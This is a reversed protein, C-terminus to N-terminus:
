IRLALNFSISLLVQNHFPYCTVELKNNYLKSRVYGVKVRTLGDKEAKVTIGEYVEYSLGGEWGGTTKLHFLIDESPGGMDENIYISITKTEPLM